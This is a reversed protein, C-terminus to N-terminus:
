DDMQSEAAMRRAAALLKDFREDDVEDRLIKALTRAAFGWALLETLAPGVMGQHRDIGDGIVRATVESVVDYTMTMSEGRERDAVIALSAVLYHKWRRAAAPTDMLPRPSYDGLVLMANFPEVALLNGLAGAFSSLVREAGFQDILEAAFTEELLDPSELDAIYSALFRAPDDTGEDSM